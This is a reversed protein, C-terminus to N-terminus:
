GPLGLVGWARLSPEPRTVQDHILRVREMELRRQLEALAQQSEREQGIRGRTVVCRCVLQQLISLLLDCLMGLLASIRARLHNGINWGGGL